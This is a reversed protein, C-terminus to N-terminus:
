LNHELQKFWGIILVGFFLFDCSRQFDSHLYLMCFLQEEVTTTTPRPFIPRGKATCYARWPLRTIPQSILGETTAFTQAPCDWIWSSGPSAVSTEVKTCFPTSVAVTSVLSATLCASTTTTMTGSTM